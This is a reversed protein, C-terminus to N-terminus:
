NQYYKCLSNCCIPAIIEWLHLGTYFAMNTLVLDEGEPSTDVKKDKSNGSTKHYKLTLGLYYILYLQHTSVLYEFIRLTTFLSKGSPSIELRKSKNGRLFRLISLSDGLASSENEKKKDSSSDDGGEDKEDQIIGM